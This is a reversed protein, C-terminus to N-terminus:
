SRGGPIVSLASVSLLGDRGKRRKSDGESMAAQFEKLDPTWAGYRRVVAHFEEVDHHRIGIVPEGTATNFRPEGFKDRQQGCHLAEHVILAEREIAKAQAWFDESLIILWDPWYGLVEELLWGFLPKLPGQADPLCALGAVLAGRLKLEGEKTLIAIKREYDFLLSRLEQLEEHSELVRNFIGLPTHPADDIIVKYTM